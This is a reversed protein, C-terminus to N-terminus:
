DWSWGLLLSPSTWSSSFLCILSLLWSEAAVCRWQWRPNKRPQLFLLRSLLVPFGCNISSLDSPSAFDGVGSPLVHLHCSHFCCLLFFSSWLSFETDATNCHFFFPIRQSVCFFLPIWVRNSIQKNQPVCFHKKQYSWYNLVPLLRCSLFFSFFLFLFSAAVPARIGLTRSYPAAILKKM